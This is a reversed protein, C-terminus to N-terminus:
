SVTLIRTQGEATVTRIRWGKFPIRIELSELAFRDGRLGIDRTTITSTGRPAINVVHSASSL